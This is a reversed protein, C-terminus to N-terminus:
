NWSCRCRAGATRRVNGSPCPAAHRASVEPPALYVALRARDELELTFPYNVAYNELLFDFPNRESLEIEATFDFRLDTTPESAYNCRAVVNDFLDRRLRVAAGDNTVLEARHSIRGPEPRPFLRVLHPGFGVPREYRYLTRHEIRIRM